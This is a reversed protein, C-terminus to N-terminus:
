RRGYSNRSRIPVFGGALIILRCDDHHADIHMKGYGYNKDALLMAAFDTPEKGATFEAIKKDMQEYYWSLVRSVSTTRKPIDAKMRVLWPVTLGLELFSMNKKQKYVEPHWEGTKLMGYTQNFVSLGMSDFTLFLAWDNMDVTGRERLQGLFADICQM